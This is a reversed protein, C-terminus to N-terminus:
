PTADHGSHQVPERPDTRTVLEALEDKKEVVIWDGGDTVVREIRALNHGPAVLFRRANTRVAEYQPRPVALKKRCGEHSCECFVSLPEDAPWSGQEPWALMRENAVRFIAQNLALREELTM